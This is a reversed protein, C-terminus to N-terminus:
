PSEEGEEAKPSHQWFQVGHIYVVALLPGPLNGEARRTQFVKEPELIPYSPHIYTYYLRILEDRHPAFASEVQDVAYMGAHCDLHPNPFVTLYSPVGQQKGIRWITWLEDGFCETEDYILHRLLTPDQDSSSGSYLCTRDVFM